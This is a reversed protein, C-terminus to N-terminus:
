KGSAQAETVDEGAETYVELIINWKYGPQVEWIRVYHYKKGKGMKSITADGYTFALEGSYSRDAKVIQSRVNFGQKKWFDMIAKKGIIPEYGPFLLRSEDAMFENLAINNDAKQVTTLLKDSSYIIDVRQQLRTSSRQHLFIENNPNSFNLVPKQEPKKHPVDLDLALKWIGKTNKKWFALYQGYGTRSNDNTKFTYPGTTFGWDASKSIRAYVPQWSLYGASDPQEKYFEEAAVPGPRFVITNADSVSLFAKRIGKEKALAAFYNEVAVLQAVKDTRQGYVVGSLILFFFILPTIRM